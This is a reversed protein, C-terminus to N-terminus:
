DVYVFENLNLLTLCCLRLAEDADCGHETGLEAHLRSLAEVEEDRAPRQTVLELGRALRQELSDREAVVRDRLIAAQQNLFDSNLMTLAQTPLTTVFRVPCSTDADALDFAQLLPMVLSRKVHVYISRRAAQEPSSRGWAADPRSSTELVARPMEPYIGPGGMELNLRGGVALISDRVGEATLRRIPARSFLDNVPDTALADDRPASSQRYTASTVILRHLDKLRAGRAVFESALWDLLEPHTPAEGLKGFDNPTRSIGRGFHHMWVRN